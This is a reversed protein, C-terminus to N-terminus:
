RRTGRGRLSGTRGLLGMPPTPTPAVPTRQNEDAIGVGSSVPGEVPVLEWRKLPDNMGVWLDAPLVDGVEQKFAERMKRDNEILQDVTDRARRLTAQIKEEVSRRREAELMLSDYARAYSDYFLKLEDMEEMQSVIVDREIAWRQTFEAEAEVYSPLRAGVEELVSFAALVARNTGRIRDAQQKLEGFDVEMQQLIAQIEAVVEDVEPADQMVVQVLEAWEQPDLPDLMEAPIRTDQETIVGSISMPGGGPSSDTEAARRRALAAGGETARVAKVCMDFHKNLASLHQAMTSSHQTLASLLHSMPTYASSNSPSKCDPATALTQNLVRLDRDFSLLDNDFSKEIDQSLNPLNDPALTQYKGVCRCRM